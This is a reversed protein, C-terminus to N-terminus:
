GHCSSIRTSSVLETEVHGCRTCTKTEYTNRVCKPSTTYVNHTVSVSTTVTYNHGFLTCLINRDQENQQADDGFYYEYIYAKVVPSLGEPVFVEVNDKEGILVMKEEAGATLGFFQVAGFLLTLVLVFSIIKKM